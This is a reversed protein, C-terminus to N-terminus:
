VYQYLLGQLCCRLAWGRLFAAICHSCPFSKSSHWSPEWPSLFLPSPAYEIDHVVQIPYRIQMWKEDLTCWESDLKDIETEALCRRYQTLYDVYLDRIDEKDTSLKQLDACAPDGAETTHLVLTDPAHSLQWLM